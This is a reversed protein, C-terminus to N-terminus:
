TGPAATTFSGASTLARALVSVSSVSPAFNLTPGAPVNQNVLVTTGDIIQVVYSGATIGTGSILDGAKLQTTDIDRVIRGNAAASDATAALAAASGDAYSSTLTAGSGLALTTNRTGTLSGLSDTANATFTTNWGSNRVSVTDALSGGAGLALGGGTQGGFNAISVAGTFTSARTLTQIGAGVKNLGGTGTIVGSYDTSTDDRGVTLTGAGMLVSAGAVGALSGVTEANGNLDLTGSAGIIVASRDSIVQVSNAAGVQLTGANITTAGTHANGGTLVLTGVGAKTFSGEGSIVGAFTGGTTDSVLLNSAAGLTVRSNTVGTLTAVSQNFGGNVQLTSGAGTLSLNASASTINAANAVVRGTGAITLGTTASGKNFQLVGNNVATLGTYTLAGGATFIQTYTNNKVIGGAGSIVGQYNQATGGSTPDVGSLILNGTSLTFFATSQDGRLASVSVDSTVGADVVAGVGATNLILRSNPSFGGASGAQLTGANVNTDGYYTNTGSLVFTGARLNTLAGAGSINQTITRQALTAASTKNIQILGDNIVSTGTGFTAVNGAVANDGFNLTGQAVTTTGTYTNNGSLTVSGAGAKVLNVVDTGNDAIVASVTMTNQQNWLFLEDAVADAAGGATLTGNSITTTFNQNRILGGSTVNLSFGGLGFTQAGAGNFKLTNVARAGTLTLNATQVENLASTWSAEATTTATVAAFASTAFDTQNIVAWGGLIGNVNANSTTAIGATGVNLVAGASRTIAGAGLVGTGASRAISNLTGGLVLSGVTETGAGTGQLNLTARNLTLAATDNLKNQSAASQDINLQSGGGVTTAGLGTAGNNGSLTVTNGTLVNMGEIILAGGGTISGSTSGLVVTGAGAVGGRITLANGGTAIDNSVTLTRGTNVRWTQASGLALTMANTAVTTDRSVTLNQGARFMDIGGAGLTITNAIAAGGSANSANQITIAGGPNILTGNFLSGITLGYVQLNTATTGSVRYTTAATIFNGFIIDDASTFAAGEAYNQIISGPAAPTFTATDLTTNAGSNQKYLTDAKVQPVRSVAVGLLAAAVMLSARSLAGRPRARRPSVSM